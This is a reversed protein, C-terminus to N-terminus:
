FYQVINCSFNYVSNIVFNALLQEINYVINNLHGGYTSKQWRRWWERLAQCPREEESYGERLAEQCCQKGHWGQGTGASFLLDRRFCSTCHKALVKQKIQRLLLHSCVSSENLLHCHSVSPFEPQPCRRQIELISLIPCCM